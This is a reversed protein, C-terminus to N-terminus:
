AGRGFRPDAPVLEQLRRIRDAMPPHTPLRWSLPSLMWRWPRPGFVRQRAADSFEKAIGLASGLATPDGCLSAGEMDARRELRRNLTSLVVNAAMLTVLGAAGYVPLAVGGGAFAGVAIAGVGGLILAVWVRAKAWELDDRTIHVVEHALIARLQRDDVRDVYPGSLVLLVRGRRTRVGAVRLADDRIVVKPLACPARTCLDELLPAIRQAMDERYAVGGVLASTRVVALALELFVLGAILGLVRHQHWSGMVAWAGLALFYVSNFWLRGRVRARGRPAQFEVAGFRVVSSSGNRSV